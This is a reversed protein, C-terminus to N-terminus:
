QDRTFVGTDYVIKRKKSKNWNKKPVFCVFFLCLCSFNSHL